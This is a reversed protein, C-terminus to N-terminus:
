GPAPVWTTHSESSLVFEAKTRTKGRFSFPATSAAGVMAGWMEVCHRSSARKWFNDPVPRVTLALCRWARLSRDFKCTQSYLHEDGSSDIGTDAAGTFPRYLRLTKPILNVLFSRVGSFFLETRWSRRSLNLVKFINQTQSLDFDLTFPRVDEGEYWDAGCSERFPGESFTKEMNIKFGLYGLLSVLPEYASKRVIIDDGYVLYDIGPRGAGVASCAAAFILTELPFCFGNGMSCFKHYSYRTGKLEYEKSRTSDLLYFWDPPLIERCLEISISDSASSLDITCFPDLDGPKSGQRAFDQNRSQDSLDIGVRKLCHRLSIDIGKQIFGNILPEIAITRHTMATKPVFTIKNHSVISAKERYRERELAYDGDGSTFPAHEPIIVSRFHVNNMMAVYGITFAGPTVSWKEALLKRAFNTSRSVGISAGPGFTANQMIADIRPECGIVYSIFHRMQHLEHERVGRNQNRRAKFRQNIRSCKHEASLFKKIATAEPDAKVLRGWPYKRVLAAFQNKVFHEHRTEYKQSAWSDALMLLADFNRARLLSLFSSVGDIHEHDKGLKHLFKLFNELKKRQLKKNHERLVVLLQRNKM